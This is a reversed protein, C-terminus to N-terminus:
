GKQIDLVGPLTSLEKLLADLFVEPPLLVAIKVSLHNPLEDDEKINIDRISVQHAGLTSGILGIMGPQDVISLVLSYPRKKKMFLKEANGLFILTAFVILASTISSFYFGAGVALGIGSVVWLSAATTLGRITPGEKLITGAGLFGIGSVVQAAIRGPDANVLGKTEFFVNISVIMILASGVCVLIHTRFGAPRKSSERELGIMGGLVVALLLRMVTEWESILEHGGSFPLM